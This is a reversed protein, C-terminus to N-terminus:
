TSRASSVHCHKNSLPIFTPLILSWGHPPLANKRNSGSPFRKSTHDVYLKPREFQPTIAIKQQVEELRTNYTKQINKLRSDHNTEMNELSSEMEQLKGVVADYEEKKMRIEEAGAIPVEATSIPQSVKETIQAREKELAAIKEQMEKLRAEYDQKMNEIVAKMGQLQSAIEDFEDHNEASKQSTETTM